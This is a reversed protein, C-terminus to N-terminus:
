VLHLPAEPEPGAPEARWHIMRLILAAAHDLSLVGTNLQLGYLVPDDVDCSFHHRLYRGREADRHETERTAEALTARRRRAVRRVRDGFPAVVRIHLADPRSAFVCQSGHGVVVFPLSAVADRLVARAVSAVMDPDPGADPVAAEPVGRAFVGAIREVIGGVHEDLAAIQAEPAQVRRAVETILAHDIVRWGLAQGVRQAIEGGGSGYHRSLTVIRVPELTLM